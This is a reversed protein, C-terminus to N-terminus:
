KQLEYKSVVVLDMANLIDQDKQQLAESLVVCKSLVAKMIHLM